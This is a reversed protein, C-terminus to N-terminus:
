PQSSDGAPIVSVLEVTLIRPEYGYPGRKRVNQYALKAPVYLEWQAGERMHLLAEKLGPFAEDVALTKPVDADFSNDTETGDPRFARYEIVVKDDTGPKKGTGPILERYQLGSPLTVVGPQKANERLFASADERRKFRYNGSPLSKSAIFDPEPLREGVFGRRSNEGIPPTSAADTPSLDPVRSTDGNESVAPPKRPSPARADDPSRGAITAQIDRIGRSV